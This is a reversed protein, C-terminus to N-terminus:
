GENFSPPAASPDTAWRTNPTSGLKFQLAAGKAIVEYPLWTSNYPKGNLRLDQVYPTNTSAGQGTIKLQKGGKLRVTISPFLPSNIAFGGVGPIIPFSWHSRLCDM